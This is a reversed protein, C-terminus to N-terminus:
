RRERYDIRRGANQATKTSFDVLLSVMCRNALATEM